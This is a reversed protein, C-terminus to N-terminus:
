TCLKCDQGVYRAMQLHSVFRSLTTYAAARLSIDYSSLSSLTIALAGSRIFSHTLVPSEPSLLYTFLPLYFSPDYVLDEEKDSDVAIQFSFFNIM